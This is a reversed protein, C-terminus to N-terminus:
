YYEDGELFFGKSLSDDNDCNEENVVCHVGWGKKDDRIVWAPYVMEDYDGSDFSGRDQSLRVDDLYYGGDETKRFFASCLIYRGEEWEGHQEIYNEIQVDVHPSTDGTLNYLDGLRYSKGGNNMLFDPLKDDNHM